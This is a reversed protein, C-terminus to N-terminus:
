SIRAMLGHEAFITLTCTTKPANKNCKLKRCKATTNEYFLCNNWERMKFIRHSSGGVRIWLASTTLDRTIYKIM